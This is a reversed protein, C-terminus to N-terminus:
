DRNKDDIKFIVTEPIDDEDEEMKGSKTDAPLSHLNETPAPKEGVEESASDIDKTSIIVTEPIEDDPDENQTVVEEHITDVKIITTKPLEGEEEMEQKSPTHVEVNIDVPQSSSIYVKKTDEQSIQSRPLEEEFEGPKLLVTEKEIVDDLPRIEEPSTEISQKERGPVSKPVDKKWKKHIDKLIDYVTGDSRKDPETHIPSGLSEPQLLLKKISDRTRYIEEWFIDESWNSIGDKNAKLLTFGMNITDRWLTQWSPDVVKKTPDWFINEPAFVSDLTDIEPCPITTDVSSPINELVDAVQDHIMHISNRNNSLLIYFWISGLLYLGYDPPLKSISLDKPSNLGMGLYKLRFNWLLPLLSSQEALSVWIRDISMGFDPHRWRDLNSLIIQSLEGLLTLKLYLIELFFRDEQEFLFMTNSLSETVFYELCRVRNLQGKTELIKNLDEKKAGSILPLFELLNLTPAKLLLMFFPYFSVPIIRSLSLDGSEYCQGFNPCEPCPVGGENNESLNPNCFEKILDNKDKLSLPDEPDRLHVYFKSEGETNQCDACYLYKKISSSYPQLDNKILLDDDGCLDLIGGCKPCSPHFYHGRERCYFLPYWRQLNKNSDLQGKLTILFSVDEKAKLLSFSDQWAKNIDNNNIPWIADNNLRYEDKEILLFVDEIAADADSKIVAKLVLALPDSSSVVCFPYNKTVIDKNETDACLDLSFRDNSPVLYPILSPKSSLTNM